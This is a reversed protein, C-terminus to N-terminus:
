LDKGNFLSIYGPEPQFDEAQAMPQAISHFLLAALGIAFSHSNMIEFPELRIIGLFRMSSLAVYSVRRLAETVASKPCFEPHTSCSSTHIAHKTRLWRMSRASSRLSTTM